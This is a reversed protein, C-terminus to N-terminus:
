LGTLCLQLNKCSSIIKAFNSIKESFFLEEMSRVAIPLPSAAVINGVLTVKSFLFTTLM